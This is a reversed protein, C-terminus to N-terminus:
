SSLQASELVDKVIEIHYKLIFLMHGWGTISSLDTAISALQSQSEDYITALYM